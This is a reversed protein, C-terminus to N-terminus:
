KFYEMGKVHVEIGKERLYDIIAPFDKLRVRDLYYRWAFRRAGRIIQIYPITYGSLYIIKLKVPDGYFVKKTWFPCIANKLIFADDSFIIYFESLFVIGYFLLNPLLIILGCWSFLKAYDVNSMVFLVFLISVVTWPIFIAQVWRGLWFSDRFIKMDIFNELYISGM